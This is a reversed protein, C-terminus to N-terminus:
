FKFLLFLYLFDLMCVLCDVLIHSLLHEFLFSVFGM